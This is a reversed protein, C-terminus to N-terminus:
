PLVYRLGFRIAHEIREYHGAATPIAYGGRVAACAVSSYDFGNEICTIRDAPNYASSNVDVPLFYQLGYGLQLIFPSSPVRLQVGLDLTLSFPSITLPSTRDDPLSATEFGLRGGFRWRQGADVQELGAWLAFPDQLGRPRETWEAVDTGIFSDGYTRVDYSEFRSLDEWRGGVHLDIGELVRARFEADVSAPLSLYVTSGGVLTGGGDRPARTVVATGDLESAIANGPATHYAVGIWVDRMIQVAVGLNVIYDATLSLSSTSIDYREAALPNEVGCPSGGCDSDVGGIGHGKELATDRLYHLHVRIDDLAASVGFFIDDTAKISAGVVALYERESGGLTHYGLPVRNQIFRASPPSGFSAALTVRDVARWLFALQEGPGLEIDRIRPGPSLNGSADAIQRDIALQDAVLMGAIYIEIDQTGIGIAAPNLTVSTPTPETAGTFVARGLTPDSHPSGAATGALACAAGIVLSPRAMARFTDGRYASAM